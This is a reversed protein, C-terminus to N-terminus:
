FKPVSDPEPERWNTENNYGIGILYAHYLGHMIKIRQDFTGSIHGQELEDSFLANWNAKESETMRNYTWSQSITGTFRAFAADKNNM